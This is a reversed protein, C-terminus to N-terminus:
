SEPLAGPCESFVGVLDGMLDEDEELADDGEMLSTILLRKLLDDDIAGELCEVTEDPVDEGSTLSEIFAARVDMCENIDDWFADAQADDLTLGFESPSSDPNDRIEDPSVAGQLQDVGVADVFARAFCENEEDTLESDDGSAVIADVYERGEDSGSDGGSGASDDDDGCAAGFVSIAALTVVLTTRRM